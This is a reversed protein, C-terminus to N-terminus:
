EETDNFVAQRAVMYTSSVTNCLWWTVEPSQDPLSKHFAPADAPRTEIARNIVKGIGEVVQSPLRDAHLHISEEQSGQLGHAVAGVLAVAVNRIHMETKDLDSQIFKIAIRLCDAYNGLVVHNKIGLYWDWVDILVPLSVYTRFPYRPQAFNIEWVGLSTPCTSFTECADACLQTIVGPMRVVQLDECQAALLEVPALSTELDRQDFVNIAPVDQLLTYRIRRAHPSREVLKLIEKESYLTSTNVIYFVDLAEESFAKCVTLLPRDIKTM